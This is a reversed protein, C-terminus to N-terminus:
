MIIIAYRLIQRHNFKENHHAGDKQEITDFCRKPRFLKELGGFVRNPTEKAHRLFQGTVQAHEM